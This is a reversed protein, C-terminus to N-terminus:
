DRLFTRLRSATPGFDALADWGWRVMSLNEARLADERRKEAYVADAPSQGPRLLRGYKEKGDFEGITRKEPWGFDVTGIWGAGGFVEWQLVPVPLGARAMAVRSRSEGVSGSREDAFAVVRRAAPCGRWGAARALVEALATRLAALQEPDNILAHLAADAVVLAAEFPLTRALDVVTRAVSTVPLGDVLDIDDPHLPATHLHLGRGTRGGTRWNRTVHVRQLRMGWTPLRHLVAASAHSAVAGDALHALEARVQLAHRSDPDDPAAGLVYSGRRVATLHGARLMRQVEDDGFGELRLAKRQYIDPLEM